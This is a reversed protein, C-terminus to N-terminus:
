TETSSLSRVRKLFWDNLETSSLMEIAGTDFHSVGQDKLLGKSVLDACFLMSSSKTLSTLVTPIKEVLIYGNSQHAIKLIEMQIDSLENVLNLAAETEDWSCEGNLCSASLSAFRKIKESSKTKAVKDLSSQFLDFIVEDDQAISQLKLEEVQASLESIYAELRKQAFGQAKDTLVNDIYTGVWPVGGILARTVQSGSYLKSIKTDLSLTPDNGIEFKENRNM